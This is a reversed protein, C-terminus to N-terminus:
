KCAKDKRCTQESQLASGCTTDHKVLNVESIRVLNIVSTISQFTKCIASPYTCSKCAKDKVPCWNKRLVDFRPM